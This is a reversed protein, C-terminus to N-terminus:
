EGAKGRIKSVRAFVEEKTLKKKNPQEISNNYRKVQESTPNMRKHKFAPFTDECYPQLACWEEWLLRDIEKEKAKKFMEMGISIPLNM